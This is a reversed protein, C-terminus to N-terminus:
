FPIGAEKAPKKRSAKKATKAKRDRHAKVAKAKKANYSAAAAASDPDLGEMSADGEAVFPLDQQPDPGFKTVRRLEERIGDMKKKTDRCAKRAEDYSEEAETLREETERISLLVKKLKEPDDSLDSLAKTVM